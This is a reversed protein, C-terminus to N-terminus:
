AALKLTFTLGALLELWTVMPPPPPFMSKSCKDDGVLSVKLARLLEVLLTNDSIQFLCLSPTDEPEGGCVCVCVCLHYVIM